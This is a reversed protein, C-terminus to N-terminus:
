GQTNDSPLRVFFETNGPESSFRITGGYQDVIRQVIGLGIGTGVGVAKTTYFPDFIHPQSELPIGSGNDSISICLDTRKPDTPSKESWTRMRIIGHQPVADISNDLLNTWIQNLGSCESHLPPLDPALNKELVIEKERFKHALIVLTAHISKNIDVDQNKAKGEYAYSKVAYVLDSVRGISEEITTVLQMSSVLADLWNLADSLTSGTFAEQTCELQNANLGAAVLTPAIKWANEINHTELWQALAEEADSQELSNMLVPPGGALAQDQLDFLCQKQVASMEAKSFRASLQHLRM